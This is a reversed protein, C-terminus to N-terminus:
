GAAVKGVEEVLPAVSNYDSGIQQFWDAIIEGTGKPDYAQNIAIGWIQALADSTLQGGWSATYTQGGQAGFVNSFEQLINQYPGVIVIGVGAHFGTLFGWGSTDSITTTATLTGDQSVSVSTQIHGNGSSGIQQNSTSASLPWQVDTTILLNAPNSILGPSNAVTITATTGITTSSGQPVVFTIQSDSWSNIQVGGSDQPAGSDINNDQCRVYGAGQAAGFFAGNITIVEGPPAQSASLSNIVPAVTVALYSPASTVGASNTVTITATSDPQIAWQNGPGSPEPVMFTIQTDSWSLVQFAAQDGPAGWNVGGDSFQLHGNGRTAGFGSGQVMVTQGPGRPSPCVNTIQPGQQEM